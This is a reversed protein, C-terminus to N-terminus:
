VEVEYDVATRSNVYHNLYQGLEVHKPYTAYVHLSEPSDFRSKLFLDGTSSPLLDSILTLSDIGSLEQELEALITEMHKIVTRREEPEVNDNFKWLVLHEIM